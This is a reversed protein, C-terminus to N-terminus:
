ASPPRGYFANELLALLKGRELPAPNPYQAKAALDAAVELDEKKLGLSELSQVTGLAKELEWLAQAPSGDTGIAKAIQNMAVPAAEMNYAMAHPLVVTHTQAHPLNFTGGLTHCLKHHIAMGVHGLCVGAAYAGQQAQARADIDNPADKLKLLAHYLNTIGSIAVGEIIPNITPSYLAEVCHAIANMGSTYTLQAPLSLTLDVDYVITNPLIKPDSRTTKLKNVTEGLIPTAESGAYTTPVAIHPIGTRIALAKGLGVTSGGGVSVLCDAKSAKLQELAKNTVDEPTHMVADTCVGAVRDKGLDNGIREALAIQRDTDETVILVSKGGLKEVEEPIKSLTGQGFVTRPIHAEFTWPRM